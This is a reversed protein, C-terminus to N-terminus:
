CQAKLLKQINVKQAQYHNVPPHTPIAGLIDMLQAMFEMSKFVISSRARPCNGMENGKRDSIHTHTHAKSESIWTFWNSSLLEDYTQHPSVHQLTAGVICNVGLTFKLTKKWLIICCNVWLCTRKFCISQGSVLHVLQFVCENQTQHLNAPLNM